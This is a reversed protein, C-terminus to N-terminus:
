SFLLIDQVIQYEPSIHLIISKRGNSPILFYLFLLMELMEATCDANCMCLIKLNLRSFHAELDM